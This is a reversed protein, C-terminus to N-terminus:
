NTIYKKIFQPVDIIPINLKKADEAKGTDEELSKAIVMFTNNTVNTGIIAGSNKLMEIIQKDRTGTLIIQKKYFPNNKNVM